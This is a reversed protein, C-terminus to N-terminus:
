DISIDLLFPKRSTINACLVKIQFILSFAYIAIYSPLNNMYPLLHFKIKVLFRSDFNINKYKNIHFSNCRDHIKDYM